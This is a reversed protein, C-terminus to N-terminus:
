GILEMNLQEALDILADGRTAGYGVPSNADTDHEDLAFWLKEWNVYEVRINM